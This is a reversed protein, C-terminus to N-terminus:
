LLKLSFYPETHISITDSPSDATDKVIIREETVINSMLSDEILSSDETKIIIEDTIYSDDVDETKVDEKIPNQLPPYTVEDDFIEEQKM